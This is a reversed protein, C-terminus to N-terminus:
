SKPKEIPRGRWYDALKELGEKFSVIPKYGLLSKARELNYWHSSSLQRATFLTLPPEKVSKALSWIRELSAGIFRGFAKPIQPKVPALGAAALLHNILETLDMPEDQSIFFPLGGVPLGEALKELALVHAAAANDIYTADV